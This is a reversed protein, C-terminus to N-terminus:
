DCWPHERLWEQAREWRRRAALWGRDCSGSTYAALRTAEPNSACRELSDRVQGLAIRAADQLSRCVAERPAHSQFLGWAKDHDGSVRCFVVDARYGGSEYSAISALLLGTQYPTGIPEEKAVTAIDSAIQMYRAETIAPAEYYAHASVPAWLHMAAMIATALSM